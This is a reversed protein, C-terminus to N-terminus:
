ASTGDVILGLNALETLLSQLAAGSAKSGTVTPQAIPAVAFFGMGTDNIRIRNTAGGTQLRLEGGATTGSGPRINFIGGTSTAGSCDQSHITLAEGTASGVATTQQSFSPATVSSDYRLIAVSLSVVGTTCVLHDSNNVRLSTTSGNYISPANNSGFVAANGATFQILTSNVLATTISTLQFGNSVRMDGASPLTAPGLYLDGTTVVNQAGFDPNIKTGAIAAATNVDANVIVDNAIATVNLGAAKTIDGTFAATQLLGQGNLTISVGDASSPGRVIGWYNVGDYYLSVIDVAAPATSFIPTFGGVWNVAVPFSPVRGGVGDQIVKLQLSCVGPPATFTLAPAVANLTIKQAQGATWDILKAAGSNGNDVEALYAIVKANSMTFNALSWDGGLDRTGDVLLSSELADKVTAGPNSSDNDVLSAAYDNLLAVVAGIRGFVSTVAGGGGGTGGGFFKPM